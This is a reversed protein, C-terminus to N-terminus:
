AKRLCRFCALTIGEDVEEHRTEVTFGAGALVAEWTAISFLGEVHHDHVTRVEGAHRLAFVYETRLATDAPDPDWSWELARLSRVGDDGELLECSEEFTDRVADPLFLAVGGPRTHEFATRAAARLDAESVMYMVADHVLVADFQRGLRVSRMDGELHECEPNQARSLALMQPSLDTLTCRYRRKLWFAGNGAGAGLELLSKAEPRAAELLAQYVSTEREHDAVPDLLHYWDTLESYLVPM